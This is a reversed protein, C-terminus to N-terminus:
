PLLLLLRGFHQSARASTLDRYSLFEAVVVSPLFVRVSALGTSYPSDFFLRILRTETPEAPPSWFVFPSALLAPRYYPSFVPVPCASDTEQAVDTPDRSTTTTSIPNSNFRSGVLPTRHQSAATGQTSPPPAFTLRPTSLDSNQTVSFLSLTYLPKDRQDLHRQHSTVRNYPSTASSAHSRSHFYHCRSHTTLAPLSLIYPM